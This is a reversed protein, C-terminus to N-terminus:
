LKPEDAKHKLLAANASILAVALETSRSRSCCGAVVAIYADRARNFAHQVGVGAGLWLNHAERRRTKEKAVQERANQICCDRYTYFLRSTSEGLRSELGLRPCTWGFAGDSQQQSFIVTECQIELNFPPVIVASRNMRKRDDESAIHKKAYEIAHNLDLITYLSPQEAHDLRIEWRQNSGNYRAYIHHGRYYISGNDPDCPRHVYAPRSPADAKNFFYLKSYAAHFDGYITRYGPRGCPFCPSTVAALRVPLDARLHDRLKVEARKLRADLRAILSLILVAVAAIVPIWAFSVNHM